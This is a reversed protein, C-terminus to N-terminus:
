KARGTIMQRPRSWTGSRILKLAVNVGHTFPLDSLAGEEVSYRIEELTSDLRQRDVLASLRRRAYELTLEPMRRANVGALQQTAAHPKKCSSPGVSAPVPPPTLSRILCSQEEVSLATDPDPAWRVGAQLSLAGVAADYRAREAASMHGRLSLARLRPSLRELSASSTGVLGLGKAEHDSSRAKTGGNRSHERIPCSGQSGKTGPAEQDERRAVIAPGVLPNGCPSPRGCIEAPWSASLVLGEGPPKVHELPSPKSGEPTSSDPAQRPPGQMGLRATDADFSSPSIRLPVEGPLTQLPSGQAEAPLSGGSSCPLSNGPPSSPLAGLPGIRSASSAPCPLPSGPKSHLASQGPSFAGAQECGASSKSKHSKKFGACVATLTAALPFSKLGQNLNIGTERPMLAAKPPQVPCTKQAPRPPSTSKSPAIRARFPTAMSGAPLKQRREQQELELIFKEPLQIETISTAQRYPNRLDRGQSMRRILGVSQLSKHAAKVTSINVGFEEAITRIPIASRWRKDLNEARSSMQAIRWHMWFVEATTPSVKKRLWRDLPEPRWTFHFNSVLQDRMDGVNAHLM